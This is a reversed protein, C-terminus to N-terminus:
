SGIVHAIGTQAGDDIQDIILDLLPVTDTATDTWTGSDRTAYHFNMGGPMGSCYNASPLQLSYLNFNTASSPEIVARYWTNITLTVPNDFYSDQSVAFAGANTGVIATSSNNLESGADDMMIINHDGSANSPFYRLGNVICPFPVQFRAARAASNTNNFATSGVAIVPYVHRIPYFVTASSGLALLISSSSAKVASGTTNTVKYPVRSNGIILGLAGTTVSTGSSYKIVVAFSQGAAITASAALALLQWTGAVCAASTATSGGGAANWLTGTPNGSSLTEITVTVVGSGAAAQPNFGVHSIVMAEKANIVYASYEGSADLLDLAAIAPNANAALGPWYFPTGPLKILAM